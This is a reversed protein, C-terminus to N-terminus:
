NGATTDDETDEVIYDAEVIDDSLLSVVDEMKVTHEVKGQMEVLIPQLAKAAAIADKLSVDYEGNDLKKLAINVVQGLFNIAGMTENIKEESQVSLRKQIEINELYTNKYKTIAVHSIKFGNDTCYTAIERMPRGEQIMRDIDKQLPHGVIKSKNM